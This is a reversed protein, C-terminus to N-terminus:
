VFQYIVITGIALLVCIGALWKSIVFIPEGKRVRNWETKLLAQSLDILPKELAELADYNEEDGNFLVQTKELIELIKISQEEAPNLRLRTRMLAQNATVFHADLLSSNANRENEDWERYCSIILSLRAILEAIDTRTDDIWAQRFESVKHEKAIVLGLFTLVGAVIAAFISGIAAEPINM